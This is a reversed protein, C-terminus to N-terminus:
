VARKGTVVENILSKKLRKYADIQKSINDITADIEDCKQDLYDAIARQEALPPVTIFQSFVRDVKINIRTFGRAEFRLADHYTESNLQYNVFPAYIKNSTFHLGRCFSNLYVEGPDGVVVASKAISEYDESSMLFILDNEQVRNQQEDDTMVVRNFQNFDIKTNNLVNTFPVFPKTKSDDDCRFDDGSKGTLGSYMISVDKLRLRQWHAPIDGIWDIGSPRLTVSPNLGCTVADNIISMKLREYAKQKKELLEVQGDFVGCKEDLYSAIRRQEDLSPVIVSLASIKGASIAPYSVGTSQSCIQDIVSSSLMLYMLYSSEIAFPTLVAFGTSAIVDNADFDIPAIAKLYTRVTSVIVDGKHVIRRARSPSEYFTMDDSLTIVGDSSVNSIDIYKFTYDISTDEKLTESNIKVIDKIRKVDWHSPIKGFWDIGSEKYQPYTKM